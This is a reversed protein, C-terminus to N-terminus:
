LELEIKHDNIGIRHQWESITTVQGTTTVFRVVDRRCTCCTSKTLVHLEEDKHEGMEVSVIASNRRERPTSRAPAAAPCDLNWGLRPGEVEAM